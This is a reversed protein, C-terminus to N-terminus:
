DRNEICDLANVRELQRIEGRTPNEPLWQAFQEFDGMALEVEGLWCYTLGRWYYPVPHTADLSMAATMDDIALDYEENAYALRGRLIRKGLGDTEALALNADELALAPEGLQEYTTARKVMAFEHDPQLTLVVSYDDRALEFKRLTVYADGRAMLVDTNSPLISLIQTYVDIAELTEGQDMLLQAQALYDATEEPTIGVIQILTDRATIEGGYALFDQAEVLLDGYLQADEPSADAIQELLDVALALEGEAVYWQASALLYERTDDFSAIIGQLDYPHQFPRLQTDLHAVNTYPELVEPFDLVLARMLQLTLVADMHANDRMQILSADLDELKSYDAFNVHDNGSLSKMYRTVEGYSTTFEPSELRNILDPTTPSIVLILDADHQEVLDVLEDLREKASAVLAEVEEVPFQATRDLHLMVDTMSKQRTPRHLDGADLINGGNVGGGGRIWGQETNLAIVGFLEVDDSTRKKDVLEGGLFRGQTMYQWQHQIASGIHAYFPQPQPVDEFYKAAGYFTTGILHWPTIPYLITKPFQEAPITNLVEITDAINAGFISANVFKDPELFWKAHISDSVSYGVVVIEPQYQRLLTTKYRFIEDANYPRYVVWDDSQMQLQVIYEVPLGDGLWM